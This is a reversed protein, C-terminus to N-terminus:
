TTRTRTASSSGSMVAPMRVTSSDCAPMSTTAVAASPLAATRSATRCRGSTASSSMVIGTSSPRAASMSSRLRAGDTRATMSVDNPVSGLTSRASRSPADPNTSL